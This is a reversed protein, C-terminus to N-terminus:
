SAQDNLDANNEYSDDSLEIVGASMARIVAETRNDVQLKRLIISVTNTITRKTVEFERAIRGNTAGQAILTLIRREKDSLRDYDPGKKDGSAMRQLESLFRKTMDPELLAQGQHVARIVHLLRQAPTDKLLYARAGAKLAEFLYEDEPFMTLMVIGVTPHHKMILRAAGLGDIVPLNVDMLIVSPHLKSVLQTAELGNKATGVVELDSQTELLSRLGETFLTHDDVLLIRIPSM